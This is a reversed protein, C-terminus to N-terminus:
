RETPEPGEADDSSTKQLGTDARARRVEDAFYECAKGHDRPVVRELYFELLQQRFVEAAAVHHALVRLSQELSCKGREQSRLVSITGDENWATYVCVHSVSPALPLQRKPEQKQVM